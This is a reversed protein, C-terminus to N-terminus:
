NKQTEEYKLLETVRNEFGKGAVATLIKGTQPAYYEYIWSPQGEVQQKIKVCNDFRGARVKVSVGTSQVTFATKQGASVSVWAAGKEIPYRLVITDFGGRKEILENNSIRYKKTQKAVLTRGAYLATGISAGSPSMEIVRTEQRANAGGTESDGYTWALRRDIPFYDPCIFLGKMAAPRLPFDPYNKLLKEFIPRSKHCLGFKGSYIGAARFLADPAKVDAPNKEAFISYYGAAKLFLGQKEFNEAEEYHYRGGCAALCFAFPLFVTKRFKMKYGSLLAGM